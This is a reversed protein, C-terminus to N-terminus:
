LCDILFVTIPFFGSWSLNGNARQVLSIIAARISSLYPMVMDTDVM